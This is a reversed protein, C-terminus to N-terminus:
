SKKTKKYRISLILVLVNIALSVMNTIIIPLDDRMFGYYIWLSLGAFLIVLYFISIDEAKKEKILKILQPLLSLATCTGAGIGIIGTFTNADM